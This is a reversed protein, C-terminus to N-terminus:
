AGAAAVRTPGPGSGPGPGPEVASAKAVRAPWARAALRRAAELAAGFVWHAGLAYAHVGAPIESPKKSLGAAPVVGEDATAWVMSGYLTGFGRRLAPAHESALAYNVGLAASFAYHAATGLWQKVEPDPTYGAVAQFAATGVRVTADEGASGEAQAPQAGKAERDAGPAAGEAERGDARQMLRSYTDMAMAAAIGSLVGICALRIDIGGSPEAPVSHGVRDM